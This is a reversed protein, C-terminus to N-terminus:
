ELPRRRRRRGGLLALAATGILMLCNPEPIAAVPPGQGFNMRIQDLDEAILGGPSEGRQWMLFDEGDVDNDLDFDGGGEDGTGFAGEIRVNDVTLINDADLGIEDANTAPELQLIMIFVDSFATAFDFAGGQNNFEEFGITFSQPTSTLTPRGPLTGPNDNTVSLTVQQAAEDPDDNDPTQLLLLINTGLGDDVPDYGTISADFSVSFDSLMGSTPREGEPLFLGVGLGWGAYTYSADPPIIWASTDMTATAAPPTTVDYSSTTQESTDIPQYGPPPEPPSGTGSYDFSYGFSPFTTDFDVEHVTQARAPTTLALAVSVCAVAASVRPM